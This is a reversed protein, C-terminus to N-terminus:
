PVSLTRALFDLRDQGFFMEGDVIFTPSGFVGAAIAEKSTREFEAGTESTFARDLIETAKSPFVDTVISVITEKDAINKDEAWVGRLFATSLDGPDLGLDRAALVACSADKPAVPWHKPATNIPLGRTESWRKLEADRYARRTPSQKAPPVIESAAFVAVIDIPKYSITAGARSAIRRLEPEGLYAFGSMIAYYYEITKSM